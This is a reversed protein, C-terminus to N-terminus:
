YLEFFADTGLVALHQVLKSLPGVDFLIWGGDGRYTMRKAVYGSGTPTALNFLMVPTYRRRPKPRPGRVMGLQQLRDMIALSREHELGSEFARMQPEFVVVGEDRLEVQYGRLHPHQALEQRVMEVDTAPIPAAGRIRRVAVVGNLTEHFEFGDPLEALAGEGITKRVFYRPKGTKTVGEHLYYTAGNRNEFSAVSTRARVRDTGLRLRQRADRTM